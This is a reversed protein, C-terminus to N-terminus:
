ESVPKKFEAVPTSPRIAEFWDLYNGNEPNGTLPVFPPRPKKDRDFPVPEDDPM